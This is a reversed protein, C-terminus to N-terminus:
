SKGAGRAEEKLRRHPTLKQCINNAKKRVTKRAFPLQQVRNIHKVITIRHVRGKSRRVANRAIPVTVSRKVQQRFQECEVRLPTECGLLSEFVAIELGLRQRRHGSHSNM